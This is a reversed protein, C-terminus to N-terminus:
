IARNTDSPTCRTFSGTKTKVDASDITKDTQDHRNNRFKDRVSHLTRAQTAMLAASSERQFNSFFATRHNISASFHSQRAVVTEFYTKELSTIRLSRYAADTLSFPRVLRWLWRRQRDRDTSACLERWGAGHSMQLTPRFEM